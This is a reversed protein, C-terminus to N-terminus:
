LHAPVISLFPLTFITLTSAAFPYWPYPTELHWKNNPYILLYATFALRLYYYLTMLTFIVMLTIIFPNSLAMNQIVLWKPLFGLFPPLGGLSLLNLFLFLKTNPNLSLSLIQPVYFLNKFSFVLTMSLTILSYIILYIYWLNSTLLIAAIMWGLHTISSYAMLKRLSIQNLGGLSGTIISLITISLLFTNTIKVNFLLIMPAIKQWTMLILCNFWTLGEMISPFWFHFPAAGLKLLLSSSLFLNSSYEPLLFNSPILHILLIFLLLTISAMSQILFYKLAAESAMINSSNSILPIFSLLNIELAMWASFWSNSSIVIMTSSFLTLLFFLKAPNMFM